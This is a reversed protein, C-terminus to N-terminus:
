KATQKRKLTREYDQFRAKAIVRRDMTRLVIGESKGSSDLGVLTNPLYEKLFAHMGEHDTPLKDGDIDFLRPALELNNYAAEGTLAGELFFLQGGGDRWAAIRESPWDMREEVRDIYVVDFLRWGVNGKTSYQKANAGIKGGFLELYFVAIRNNRVQAMGEAVERLNEVIGLAPNGILDGSAYLLEERSGILYNGDPLLIIRANTGDVKETGIVPHKGFDVHEDLLSGNKQDLYHYTPISPYKTLSNIARLNAKRIDFTM